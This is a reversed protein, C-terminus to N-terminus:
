WLVEVVVEGNVYKICIVINNMTENTIPNILKYGAGDDSNVYGLKLLAGITVNKCSSTLTDVNEVGYKYAGNLAETLKANYLKQKTTADTKTLNPVVLFILLIILVISILLEVLTFGKKM